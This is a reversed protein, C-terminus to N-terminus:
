AISHSKKKITSEPLSSNYLVSKNDGYIFGCHEMPIGMMRIKYRLGKVYECAHRMALFESGFTSSEVGAQKKSIWHIPASNVFVIFGTRSRRTVKDGAHDADVFATIVFELGLPRPANSPIAEKEVHYFKSWDHQPFDEEALVPYSPDMIIRANSHSKLYGFVHFVQQLHGERPSAVFSSLMSVECCIDVRGMEVIWRLSGILSQYWAANDLDLETSGDLEPRYNASMPSRVRPRLKLGAKMMKKELNSITDQIYKSSSISWGLIGNPLEEETLKAGLYIKPRDISGPKMPFFKDLEMLQSKPDEGIALADDVYLLVYEHYPEGNTKMGERIWLDPDALCSKYGLLDMCERLHNRFDAGASKNGYLARTIVAKRGFDKGFERGCVTWLKQSTPATLYANQIDSSMVSLGNLAAYTLALRVTERSVVGAWTSGEPDTTRCGAAVLRAKASGDIKVDFVLHCPVFEHGVPTIEGEMLIRFAIRVNRMEKAIADRWRNNHNRQDILYAEKVSTPVEHGYKYTRKVMRHQVKAVIQDRKRIVHNVWWKYAPQEQLAASIAFETAEIPYSEKVDKLPVWTSTGDKWTCKLENGRTTYSGQLESQTGDVRHDTIAELLQYRYGEDDVQAIMNEALINAAYRAVAGDPFMVDYVRSDLVPNMNSKGIENGDSDKSLGVVRAAQMHQGNQPLLVEMGVYNEYDEFEDADPIDSPEELHKEWDYEPSLGDESVGNEPPSYPTGFKRTIFSDFSKRKDIEFPSNMESPLLRRLTQIPMVNGKETLVYQSMMNGQGTAPGLCRGLQWSSYPFAVGERRFKVWEYFKFESINSIDTPLGTMVTEPTQGACLVNERVISNRVIARREIAYCWFSAPAGSRHLDEKTETKLLGIAREARNANPTDKELYIIDCGSHQCLTKTEGWIQERGADCIINSPVGYKKFVKKVARSIELGTKGTMPVPYTWGFETAFVQCCTFGRASKGDKSAFMTDMFLDTLMRSYRLMRDNTSYRRNLTIDRTNRPCLRTVANMTKVALGESINFVDALQRSTLDSKSGKMKVVALFDERSSRVAKIHQINGDSEGKMPVNSCHSRCLLNDALLLDDSICCTFDNPCRAWDQQRTSCQFIEIDNSRERMTGNYTTMADEQDQYKTDHPDWFSAAPTVELSPLTEIEDTSPTRVPIYSTIGHLCLPIRLNDEEFFICHNDLTPTKSLFKPCEDVVIGALRMIFPPILHNVMSEIHLANRIILVYQQNTIDCEYLLLGDVVPVVIPEGIEDTFGRVSVKKGTERIIIAGAGLVPSDAHSDLELRSVTSNM